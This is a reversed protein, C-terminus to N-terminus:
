KRGDPAVRVRAAGLRWMTGLTNSAFRLALQRGRLRPTIQPTTPQLTFPGKMAVGGNPFSQAKVTIQVPGTQVAFDPVIQDVTSFNDGDGIDFYGSQVFSSLPQDDADTGFEHAYLYGDAGAAMPYQFTGADAWATRSITGIMWARTQVNVSVYRDNEDSGASPYHWEVETFATNVRTTIKALQQDNLDGFVEDLVTCPLPQVQGSYVWFGRSGMWFATGGLVIAANPAILGCALGRQFFGYVYPLGQFVMSYIAADTWILIESPAAAWGMITTGGVIRYSGASNTASAAWTYLDEVESWRVLLPDLVDGTAAGFAILHREPLGTLIGLASVPAGPILVAQSAYGNVRKWNYIGGGRVCAVLDEGWNDLSWLRLPAGSIQESRSTGWAGKGFSGAGWGGTYPTSVSGAVLGPPTFDYLVQSRYVYLKSSTGLAAVRENALTAWTHIARCVGAFPTKLLKAWGGIPQPQGDARFRVKDGDTWGGENQTASAQRDIGPRFIVKQVPM